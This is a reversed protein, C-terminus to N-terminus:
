KVYLSQVPHTLNLEEGIDNYLRVSTNGTVKNAGLIYYKDNSSIFRENNDYVSIPKNTLADVYRNQITFRLMPGEEEVKLLEVSGIKILESNYGFVVDGNTNGIGNWVYINYDKTDLISIDNYINCDTEVCTRLIVWRNDLMSIGKLGYFAYIGIKRIIKNGQGVVKEGQIKAWVLEVNGCNYTIAMMIVSNNHKFAIIRGIEWKTKCESIPNVLLEIEKFTENKLDMCILTDRYSLYIYRDTYILINCNKFTNKIDELKSKIDVRDISSKVKTNNANEGYDVRVIINGKYKQIRANKVKGRKIYSILQEKTLFLRLKGDSCEYKSIKAGDKYNRLVTIM